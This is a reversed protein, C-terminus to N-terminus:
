FGKELKLVLYNSNVVFGSNMGTMVVNKNQKQEAKKKVKTILKQRCKNYKGLVLFSNAIERSIKETSGLRSGAYYKDCEYIKFDKYKGEKLVTGDSDIVTCLEPKVYAKLKSGNQYREHFVVFRDIDEIPIITEGNDAMLEKIQNM